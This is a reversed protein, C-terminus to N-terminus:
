GVGVLMVGGGDGFLLMESRTAIGSVKSCYRIGVCGTCKLLEGGKGCGECVREKNGEGERERLREGLVLVRELGGPIAKVEGARERPVTVFGRKGTGEEAPPVKRAFPVVATCGKRLGVKKLDLGDRELGDFVLAFPAGSRDSCVLTPKTITMDDKIQGLLYYTPSSPPSPFSTPYTEFTPFLSPSTFDPLPM